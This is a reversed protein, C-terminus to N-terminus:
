VFVEFTEFGVDGGACGVEEGHFRGDVGVLFVLLGLIQSGLETETVNVEEGHFHCFALLGSSSTRLLTLDSSGGVDLSPTIVHNARRLNAGPLRNELPVQNSILFNLIDLRCFLSILLNIIFTHAKSNTFPSHTSVKAFLCPM